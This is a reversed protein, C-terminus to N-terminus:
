NIVPKISKLNTMLSSVQEAADKIRQVIQEIDESTIPPTEEEQIVVKSSSSLANKVIDASNKIYDIKKVFFRRYIKIALITLSSALTIVLLIFMGVVNAKSMPSNCPEMKLHSFIIKIQSTDKLWLPGM